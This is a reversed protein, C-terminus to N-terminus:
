RPVSTIVLLVVFVIAAYRTDSWLEEAIRSMMRPSSPFVVFLIELVALVIAGIVLVQFSVTSSLMSHLLSAVLLHVIVLAMMALTANSLRLTNRAIQRATM